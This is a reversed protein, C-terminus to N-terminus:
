FIGPNHQRWIKLEVDEPLTGDGTYSPHRVWDICTEVMKEISYFYVDVGQMVSVVPRILGKDFDHPVTPIVFWGGNFAAFPFCTKLAANFEPIQGYSAMMSQYEDKAIALSSFACDRFWFPYDTDELEWPGPEQGGRWSYLAVLEPVIEGPFWQCEEKIEQEILPRRLTDSVNLSKAEYASRLDELLKHLNDASFPPVSKNTMHSESSEYSQGCAATAGGLAFLGISELFRRRKM